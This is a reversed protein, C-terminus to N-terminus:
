NRGHIIGQWGYAVAHAQPDFGIKEAIPDVIDDIAQANKAKASAGKAIALLAELESRPVTVTEARDRGILGVPTVPQIRPTKRWRQPLLSKMDVAQWDGGM